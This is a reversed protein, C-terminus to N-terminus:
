TTHAETKEDEISLPSRCPRHGSPRCHLEFSTQNCLQHQLQGLVTFHSITYGLHNAKLLCRTTLVNHIIKLVSRVTNIDTDWPLSFAIFDDCVQGLLLLSVDARFMRGKIVVDVSVADFSHIHRLLFGPPSLTKVLLMMLCFYLFRVM